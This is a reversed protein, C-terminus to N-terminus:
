TNIAEIFTKHKYKDFGYDEYFKTLIEAKKKMEELNKIKLNGDKFIQIGESSRNYILVLSSSININYEEVFWDLVPYDKNEARIIHHHM